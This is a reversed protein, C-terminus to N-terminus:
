YVKIEFGQDKLVKYTLYFDDKYKRSVDLLLYFAGGDETSVKAVDDDSDYFMIYGKKFLKPQKMVVYSINDPTIDFYYKDFATMRVEGKRNALLSIDTSKDYIRFDYNM